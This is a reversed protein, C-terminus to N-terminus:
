QGEFLSLLLQILVLDLNGEDDLLGPITELSDLSRNGTIADDPDGLTEIEGPVEIDVIIDGTPTSFVIQVDPTTACADHVLWAGLPLSTLAMLGVLGFMVRKM